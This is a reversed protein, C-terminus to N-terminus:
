KVIRNKLHEMMNLKYAPNNAADHMYMQQIDLDDMLEPGLKKLPDLMSSRIKRSLLEKGALGAGAGAGAGAVAGVGARPLIEKAYAKIKEKLSLNDMEGENQKQIANVIGITGGTGSGVLGAGIAGTAPFGKLNEKLLKLIKKEFEVNAQKNM